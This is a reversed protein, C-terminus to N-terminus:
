RLTQGGSKIVLTVKGAGKILCEHPTAKEKLQKDELRRQAVATDDNSVQFVEAERDGQAGQLKVEFWVRKEDHVGHDRTKFRWAKTCWFDDSKSGFYVCLEKKQDWDDYGSLRQVVQNRGMQCRKLLFLKPDMLAIYRKRDESERDSISLAHGTIVLETIEDNGVVMLAEGFYTNVAKEQKGNGRTIDRICADVDRNYGELASMKNEMVSTMRGM